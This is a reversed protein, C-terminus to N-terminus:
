IFNNEKLHNLVVKGFDEVNFFIYKNSEIVKLESKITDSYTKHGSIASMLTLVKMSPKHLIEHLISNKPMFISLSLGAGHIGVLYDTNRMISIQEKLPFSATDVLRILINNPLISALKDALEKANGLIRGQNRRGKPWVKRWQVTVIKNFKVKLKHNDIISKPYYFSENNSIFSDKFKSIKMYKDILNNYLKYTKSPNKCNPFEFEIYCLSDLNIPIHIGSSIFYKNKLNKIHIPEGGRSIINKYITYFPDNNINIEISELFIVQINEPKLNFLHMMSIVNIIESNGHFINPSDQNRSIFFITKGPSLEEVKEKDDKYEYNWSNFYGVYHRNVNNLNEPNNCKMNFFGKSLIPFGFNQFDSPGNNFTLGSQKSKSPDLIINKMICIVGNKHSFINNNNIYCIHKSDENKCITTPKNNLRKEFLFIPDM